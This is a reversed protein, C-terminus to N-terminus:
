IGFPRKDTSIENVDEYVLTAGCHEAQECMEEILKPGMIAKFGPYNEVHTTSFLQSSTAIGMFVVPKLNARAAYVAAALGAPGGGIICVKTTDPVSM